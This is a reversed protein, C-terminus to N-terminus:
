WSVAQLQEYTLLLVNGENAHRSYSRFDHWFPLEDMFLDAYEDFSSFKLQMYGDVFYHYYSVM